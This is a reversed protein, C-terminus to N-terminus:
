GRFNLPRRDAIIPGGINSIYVKEFSVCCKKLTTAMLDPVEVPDEKVYMGDKGSEGVLQGKPVGVEAVLVALLRFAM